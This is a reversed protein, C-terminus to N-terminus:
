KRLLRAILNGAKGEQRVGSIEQTLPALARQLATSDRLAPRGLNAARPLQRPLDPIIVDPKMGLGEEILPLKLAGPAGAHNLVMMTRGAGVLATVMQRTQEADRLSGVDPGFVVLAHRALLVAQREPPSPPTPLDVVIVNFRQRLLELVRLVGAATPAPDAGFSEEAAFVRLRDGVPMAIRELLLADARDPEELAMRLGASPRIGMLMAAHGGRLHLDVLAVHGRTQDSLQLALNAAVTTAGVGGRAGCVVVVRGGRSAARAPEAGAIYPGVLTSVGDRTLPKTLYENVGLHRTVERYFEIDTRDGIVLVKTDPACVGALADLMGIPDDYGSVDVLCGAAASAVPRKAAGSV